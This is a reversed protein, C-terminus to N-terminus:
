LFIPPVRSAARPTSWSGCYAGLQRGVYVRADLSSPLPFFGAPFGECLEMDLDRSPGFASIGTSVDKLFLSVTPALALLGLIAPVGFELGGLVGGLCGLFWVM